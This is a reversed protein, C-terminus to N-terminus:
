HLPAAVLKAAQARLQDRFWAQAPDADLRRLWLLTETIPQLQMPPDILQLNAATAVRTALIRPILTILPTDRLMFPAVAFSTSVEVQRPIGLVDLNIDGLSARGDGFTAALYPTVSFEEITMAPRVARNGADAALVYRDRYLVERRVDDGWLAPFSTFAERPFVIADVRGRLLEAPVEDSVTHIQMRINPYRASIEVLLPHLLASAAYDSATVSFSHDDLGPDFTVQRSLTVQLEALANSVSEILANALPTTIMARGQRVLIQDGLLRRLRALTSSMASQGIMLREAAGTVSRESMLAEFAVLLNLDVRGLDVLRAHTTDGAIPSSKANM